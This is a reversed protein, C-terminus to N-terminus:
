RMSRFYYARGQLRDYTVQIGGRHSTDDYVLGTSVTAWRPPLPMLPSRRKGNASTLRPRQFYCYRTVIVPATIPSLKKPSWKVFEAESIDFEYVTYPYANYYSVNTASQPLWKVSAENEGYEVHVFHVYAGHAFWIALSILTFAALLQKLTFRM